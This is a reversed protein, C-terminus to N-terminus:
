ILSERGVVQMDWTPCAFAWSQSDMTELEYSLNEGEKFGHVIRRVLKALM